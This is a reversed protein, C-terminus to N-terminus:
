NRTISEHLNMIVRALSTWTALECPDIDRPVPWEGTAILKQAAPKDAAFERHHKDHLVALVREEEPRIARALARGYAWNLRSGVTPGGQRVIHEAFVRAAEVYTPDNLLVLAQLPTSSRPREVTCEERSPADFAVLSPHPFTRQWYTYLGRRYQESGHDHYYERIPFNLYQWYGAPQYPKVSPGGVKRSMLGSIALANDRVMEADIRFRNQRALWRNLPDRERLAKSMVSSQRYTSSLLMLRLLHKVNWGSDIFEVALWDLLEPHSPPEGQAGFDDLTKVLGQGFALKWLRNAFVRAVLPNERSVLWQALDLRTLRANTQEAANLSEPVAPSVVQGSDDLWNGRPLVRMMRPGVSVSVLTSPVAKVFEAREKELRTLEARLKPPEPKQKTVAQRLTTLKDDLLKLRAAQSPDPLLTQEQRGVAIEKLDGFFAALSYFDKTLYPDFKHNHCEACGITAALWVVSVNRVRDAAYKALYEKAQAGGEETTMLLRNYGSAVTQERTPRPLLDGALQEITFRDFPKNRNFADIVYDRYLTIDRHNDSHYGATDAFRVLDLWYLAMREGFHKSSLLRDVVQEYAQSSRDNVFAAVEAPTPPLGLLDFSLRRILTRRDAEPSPSFGQAEHGAAIFCDIPNRPWARDKVAPLAPRVPKVYAWHQEFRAGQEIWRRVTEIQEHNLLPKKSEAPPMREDPDDSAIRDMLRSGAPDGPKIARKVALERVDLRLGAKRRGQDPGHCAYCRDSLLPKIERNYDVPKVPPTPNAKADACSIVGALSVLAFRM